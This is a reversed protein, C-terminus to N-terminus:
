AGVRERLLRRVEPAHRRSIELREEVDRLRAWHHGAGDGEIGILQDRAVLASRHIRVFAEGFEEELAKLSEEILAEGGSHRVTVYKQDARFYIVEAVPIVRLGGAVPVSLHTRAGSESELAKVREPSLQVARDLAQALRERRIPKLLYDVARADFAELAHDGFATTFVVAPPSEMAALHRAAELGDMGPMRIDMLVVGPRQRALAELAEMGNASEGAVTFGPLEDVLRRLRERALSEDDVIWVDL